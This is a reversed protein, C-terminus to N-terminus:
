PRPLSQPRRETRGHLQRAGSSYRARLLRVLRLCVTDRLWRRTAASSREQFDALATSMQGEFAMGWKRNSGYLRVLEKQILSLHNGVMYALPGGGVHWLERGEALEVLRQLLRWGRPPDLDEHTLEYVRNWVDSGYLDHHTADLWARALADDASEDRWDIGDSSWDTGRVRVRIQDPSPLGQPAAPTFRLLELSLLRGARVWVVVEGIHDDDGAPVLARIPLAGDRITSTPADEPVKLHWRGTGDQAELVTAKSAQVKLADIGEIAAQDLIHNLLSLEHQDLRRWRSRTRDSHPTM